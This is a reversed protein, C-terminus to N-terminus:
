YRRRFDSILLLVIVFGVIVYSLLFRDRMLPLVLSASPSRLFMFGAIVVTISIFLAVLLKIIHWNLRKMKTHILLAQIILLSSYFYCYRWYM